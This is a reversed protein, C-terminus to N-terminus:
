TCELVGHTQVGQFGNKQSPLLVVTSPLLSIDMNQVRTTISGKIILSALDTFYFFQFHISFVGTPITQEKKVFARIILFQKYFSVKFPSLCFHISNKLVTSYRLGWGSWCNVDLGVLRCIQGDQAM